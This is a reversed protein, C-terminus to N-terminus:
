LDKLYRKFLSTKALAGFGQHSAMLRVVERVLQQRYVAAQEGGFHGPYVIVFITDDLAQNIAYPKPFRAEIGDPNFLREQLAPEQLALVSDIQEYLPADRGWHEDFFCPVFDDGWVKSSVQTNLLKWQALEELSVLKALEGVETAKALSIGHRDLVTLVSYPVLVPKHLIAQQTAPSTTM